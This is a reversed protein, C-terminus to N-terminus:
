CVCFSFIGYCYGNDNYYEYTCNSCNKGSYEAKCSCRGKNSCSQSNRLTGNTNCGCDSIKYFLYVIM